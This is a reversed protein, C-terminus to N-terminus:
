QRAGHGRVCAGTPRLRTRAVRGHLAQLSAGIEQTSRFARADLSGRERHLCAVPAVAGRWSYSEGDGLFGAIGHLAVADPAPQAGGHVLDPRALSTGSEI